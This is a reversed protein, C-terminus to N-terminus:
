MNEVLEAVRDLRPYLYNVLLFRDRFTDAQLVKKFMKEGVGSESAAKLIRPFFRASYSCVTRCQDTRPADHVECYKFTQPNIREMDEQTLNLDIDYSKLVDKYYAALSELANGAATKVHVCHDMEDKNPRDLLEFIESIDKETERNVRAVPIDAYFRDRYGAGTNVVSVKKEGPLRASNYAKNDRYNKLTMGVGGDLDYCCVSCGPLCIAPMDKKPMKFKYQLPQIYTMKYPSISAGM